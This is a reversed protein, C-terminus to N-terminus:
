PGEQTHFFRVVEAPEALINIFFKAQLLFLNILFFHLCILSRFDKSVVSVQKTDAGSMLLDTTVM